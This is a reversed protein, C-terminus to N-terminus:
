FDFISDNKREDEQSADQKGSGGMLELMKEDKETLVPEAEEKRIVIGADQEPPTQEKLIGILTEIAYLHKESENPLSAAEFMRLESKIQRIIERKM